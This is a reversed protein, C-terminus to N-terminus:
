DGFPGVSRCQDHRSLRDVDAVMWPDRLDIGGDVGAMRVISWHWRTSRCRRDFSRGTGDRRDVGDILPDVLTMAVISVM